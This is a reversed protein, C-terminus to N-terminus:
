PLNPLSKTDYALLIENWGFIGSSEWEVSLAVTELSVAWVGYGGLRWIHIKEMVTEGGEGKEVRLLCAIRM